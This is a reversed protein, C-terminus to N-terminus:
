ALIQREHAATTILAAITDPHEEHVLHGGPSVPVVTADPMMRAVTTADSPPVARDGAAAVLIVPM